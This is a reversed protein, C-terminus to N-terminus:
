CVVYRFQRVKTLFSACASRLQVKHRTSWCAACRSLHSEQSGSWLTQSWQAMKSTRLFHPSLCVLEAFFGCM